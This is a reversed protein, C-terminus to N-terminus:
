IKPNSRIFHFEMQFEMPLSKIVQNQKEIKGMVYPGYNPWQEWVDHVMVQIRILTKEISEGKDVLPSIHKRVPAFVLDFWGKMSCTTLVKPM